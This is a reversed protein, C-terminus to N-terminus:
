ADGESGVIPWLGHIQDGEIWLRYLMAILQQMEGRVNLPTERGEACHIAAKVVEGAEEAVKSIVYNPQPFKLMARKAEAVGDAILRDWPDAQTVFPACPATAEPAALRTNWHRATCRQISWGACHHNGCWVYTAFKDAIAEGGFIQCPLLDIM